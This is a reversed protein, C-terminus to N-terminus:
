SSSTSNELAARRQRPAGAAAVDATRRSASEHSRASRADPLV